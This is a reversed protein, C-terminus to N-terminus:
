NEVFAFFPKNLQITVNKRQFILQITVHNAGQLADGWILTSRM